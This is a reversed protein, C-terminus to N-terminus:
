TGDTKVWKPADDTTAFELTLKSQMTLEPGEPGPVLGRTMHVVDIKDSDFEISYGARSAIAGPIPIKIIV